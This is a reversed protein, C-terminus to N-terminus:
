GRLDVKIESALSDGSEGVLSISGVCEGDDIWTLPWVVRVVEGDEGSVSRAFDAIARHAVLIAGTERMCAEIKDLPVKDFVDQLTTLEYRNSM